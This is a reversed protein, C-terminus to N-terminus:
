KAGSRADGSTLATIARQGADLSLEVNVAEIGNYYKISDKMYRSLSEAKEKYWNLAAEL